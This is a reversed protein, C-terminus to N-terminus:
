NASKPIPNLLDLVVRWKGNAQKRWVRLYNGSETEVSSKMEYTGYTYGLDGSISVGGSTNQWTLAEPKAAFAARTAEKGVIPLAKTRYFRVDDAMYSLFSDIGSKVTMQKLFDNETKLLAAHEAEVDVKSKSNKSAPYDRPYTIDPAPTQPEDNQTGLDLFAKWIGDAHRKWITVFFGYAVPKDELSKPRYEWPGTTYGMDGARSVFAFSPRWSLVGPRAEQESWWKKGNIPHPHFIVSDDALNALFAERTGKEVSTKAFGREAEVLSQLDSMATKQQASALSAFMFVLTAFSLLKKMKNEELNEQSGRECARESNGVLSKKEDAV